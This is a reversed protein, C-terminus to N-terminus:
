YKRSLEPSYKHQDKRVTVFFSDTIRLKKVFGEGWFAYVNIRYHNTWLRRVVVHSFRDPLGLTSLVNREIERKRDKVSTAM